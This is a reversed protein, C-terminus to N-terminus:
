LHRTRPPRVYPKHKPRHPRSAAALILQPAAGNPQSIAPTGLALAKAPQGSHVAGSMLLAALTVNALM